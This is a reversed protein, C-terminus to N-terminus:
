VKEKLGWNNSELQKFLEYTQPTRKRMFTETVERIEEDKDATAIIYLKFCQAFYENAETKHHTTIWEDIADREEQYCKDIRAAYEDLIQGYLFHGFEHSLSYVGISYIKKENYDTLGTCNLYGANKIFFDQGLILKWGEEDFTDRIVEPILDLYEKAHEITSEDEGIDCAVQIGYCIDYEKKQEKYTSLLMGMLYVAMVLYVVQNVRKMANPWDAM